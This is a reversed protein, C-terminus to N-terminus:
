IASAAEKKPVDRTEQENALREQTLRKEANELQQAQEDAAQKLQLGEARAQDLASTLESIRQVYEDTVAQKAAAIAAETGQVHGSWKQDIDTLTGEFRAEAQAVVDDVTQDLTKEAQERKQDETQRVSDMEEKQEGVLTAQTSSRLEAVMRQQEKM